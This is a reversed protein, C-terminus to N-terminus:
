EKLNVTFSGTFQPNSDDRFSFTGASNLVIVSARQTSLILESDEGYYQVDPYQGFAIIHEKGDANIFSITDCFEANVFTPSIGENSVYVKHNENLGQCAGTEVGGIQYIGESEAQNKAVDSPSMNSYLNNMIFVSGLVVIMIILFTGIFFVVNYFPKPGRGLHLFFFIQIIMQTVAFALITILLASGTIIENTVLLYPIITYILSLVFGAFYSMVSGHSESTAHEPTALKNM